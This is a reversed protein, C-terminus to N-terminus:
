RGPPSKIAIGSRKLRHIIEDNPKTNPAHFLATNKGMAAAEEAAALNTESTDRIIFDFRPPLTKPKELGPIKGVPRATKAIQGALQEMRDIMESTRSRHRDSLDAEEGPDAELDYLSTTEGVRRVKWKGMRLAEAIGKGSFYVLQQRPSSASPNKLADLVDVGDIAHTSLSGGTLAALTPMLDMSTVMQESVKGAPIVGPCAMVCPVRLGGEWTTHKTGRLPKATGTARPSPGNDSTFILLTPRESPLTDLKDMLRGLEGDIEQVADGFLGGKSSGLYRNSAALPVHPLAHALYVFFPGERHRDIWKIAEDTYRRTIEPTDVLGVSETGRLWPVHDGPFHVAEYEDLNWYAGFYDDFGQDTPRFGKRFGVHWKGIACTAYGASKMMEALTHESSALGRIANPRLVGRALGVRKPYCGTLLAARSPTCIPAAVYFSTLRLGRKALRDVHPTQIETSGFCSVDGYGLDDCFVLVVNPRVVEAPAMAGFLGIAL